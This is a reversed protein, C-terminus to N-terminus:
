NVCEEPATPPAAPLDAVFTRVQDPELGITGTRDREPEAIPVTALRVDDGRIEGLLAAFSLLDWGPDVRVADRATQVLSNVFRPDALMNGDLVKEAAARLFAQLRVVRDLDGNPLGHRQRLFAPVSPGTLVQPGAPFSAGTVTDHTAARLCVPVGQLATALDAFGPLGVLGYHDIHTGTLQQVTDVLTRTGAEAAAKEDLGQQLAAQKGSAYAGSLRGEGFGPIDVWSDRPISALAATGNRRFQGLVISDAYDHDDFGVLLVNQDPAPPTGVVPESRQFMRPVLVAAVAVVVVAAAAAILIPTRNHRPEARRRELGALVTRPDPRRAAEAALAARVLQDTRDPTM